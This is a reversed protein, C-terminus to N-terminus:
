TRSQGGDVVIVQGTIWSAADSALFLVVNAVEQATGLRGGPVRQVTAEYLHPEERKRKEWLGGPFEISGPAIANVRIHKDALAVASSVTYNMLGAKVAAYAPLRASGTFGRISCVNVIAGGRSRELFPVAARTARVAGLLDVNIGALWASEDDGQSAGSANNVLVDIGGIAEAAGAIFQDTSARDGLDCSQGHVRTGFRAIENVASDVRARDRGCIAIRAGARAFSLAVALGIGRSAGAVVVSKEAFSIQV